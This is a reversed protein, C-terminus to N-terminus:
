EDDDNYTGRREPQKTGCLACYRVSAYNEYGCSRKPCKWTDGWIGAEIERLSVFIGNKDSSLSQIQLWEGALNLFIGNPAVYISDPEIYVRSDCVKNATLFQNLHFSIKESKLVGYNEFKQEKDLTNIFGDNLTLQKDFIQNEFATVKTFSLATILIFGMNKWFRNIM